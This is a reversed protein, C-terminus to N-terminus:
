GNGLNNLLKDAQDNMKNRFAKSRARTRVARKLRNAGAIRAIAQAEREAAGARVQARDARATVSREKQTTRRGHASEWLEFSESGIEELLHGNLAGFVVLAGISLIPTIALAHTRWTILYDPATPLLYGDHSTYFGTACNAAIVFLLFAGVIWAAVSQARGYILGFMLCGSVLLFSFEIALLGIHALVGEGEMSGFARASLSWTIAVGLLPALHLGARLMAAIFDHLRGHVIERKGNTNENVDNKTEREKTNDEM